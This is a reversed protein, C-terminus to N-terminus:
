ITDPVKIITFQGLCHGLDLARKVFTLQTPRIHDRSGVKVEDFRVEGPERWAFVDFFGGLKGRNAARLRDFVEVAWMPAGAQAITEVGADPPWESFLRQPNFASVWVGHWGDDQLLHVIALEACSRNGNVAFKGKRAWTLPLGPQDEGEWPELAWQQTAIYVPDARGPLDFRTPLLETIQM